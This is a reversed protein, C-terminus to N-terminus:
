FILNNTSSLGPTARAYRPKQITTDGTIVAFIQQIMLFCILQM